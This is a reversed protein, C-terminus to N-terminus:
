QIEVFRWVRHVNKVFIDIKVWFSVLLISQLYARRTNESQKSDMSILSYQTKTRIRWFNVSMQTKWLKHLHHHHHHHRHRCHNHHHRHYHHDHTVGGGDISSIQARKLIRVMISDGGGSITSSVKVLDNQLQFLIFYISKLLNLCM